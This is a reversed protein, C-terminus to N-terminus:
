VSTAALIKATAPPMLWQESINHGQRRAVLKLVFLGSVITSILLM